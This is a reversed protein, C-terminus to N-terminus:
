VTDCCDLVSANRSASFAASGGSCGLHCHPFKQAHSPTRQPSSPTSIESSEEVMYPLRGSTGASTSAASITRFLRSSYPSLWISLPAIGHLQTNIGLRTESFSRPTPREPSGGSSWSGWALMALKRLVTWSQPYWICSGFQSFPIVDFRVLSASAPFLMTPM